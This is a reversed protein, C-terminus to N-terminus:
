LVNKLHALSPFVFDPKIDSLEIDKVKTEGSLVLVSTVRNNAGIAIDTYMRDGVFAIETKDLGTLELITDITEKFPKGMYRPKVGTSATIMACIAGCDPIFGDEVPCNFDPHTAIFEAGNRIYRCAKSVKEYDLTTDFGVVVIDPNHDVLTLGAKMFSERLLKTGVLYINASPRNEKLYNITVDGSTVVDKEDIECGLRSLKSRYFVPAKSSNNTFFLFKRGTKKLKEIFELSGDILSEGLYFTGDMDLVFLKIEKLISIDM